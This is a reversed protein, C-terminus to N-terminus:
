STSHTKNPNKKKNTVQLLAFFIFMFNNLSFTFRLLTTGERIDLLVPM